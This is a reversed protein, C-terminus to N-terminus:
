CIKFGFHPPYDVEMFYLGDPPVTMAAAERNKAALVEVVWAPPHRGEGVQILVGLINRVMHHLFGDAKIDLVILENQRHFRCTYITKYPSKAQCDRGRFSSFDHHGLLHSAAAQMAELQLPIPHTLVRGEMIASAVRDNRLLYQYSRAVASFRAHFDEPMQQARHVRIDQPLYRNVGTVYAELRRPKSTDFHVVQRRAHVGKDTRGAAIATVSHQAIHELAVELTGQVSPLDCAQRQWGHYHTGVYEVELAIRPMTLDVTLSTM